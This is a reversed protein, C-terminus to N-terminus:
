IARHKRRWWVLLGLLLVIEPVLFSWVLIYRFVEALVPQEEGKITRPRITLGGEEGVLWNVMNLAMDRNFFAEANANIVWDSDGVVVLRAAKAFKEEGEAAEAKDSLKKEYAVALTVPGRLDDGDSEPVEDGAGDFLQSLNTEGWASASSKLLETYTAATDRGSKLSVTSAVNFVTPKRANFESTIPHAAYTTIVPQAGLAPAAFLRQVQDIVVDNGVSIGFQDAIDHIDSTTRPDGMLLLRGGATVYNTLIEREGAALPRKPSVLLVAAADEPVKGTQGLFLGEITLHEDGVAQAFSKFGQPQESDLEPEEHGQVYYIKKAQGRLLKLIANTIGQESLENLRSVGKREGEGYELYILNGPKLEYKDLLQPKPDILETTVQNSGAKYLSLLDRVRSDDAEPELIGVIRLPHKLDKIVKESQPALSYVGASTLDWRKDKKSAILNVVVLVGVFVVAYSVVNYGFRARRGSLAQGAQGISRGGVLVFWAVIALVGFILHALILPQQYGQDFGLVMLGIVGFACVVLGALGVFGNLLGM